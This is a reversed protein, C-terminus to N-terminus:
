LLAEKWVLFRGHRIATGSQEGQRALGPGIGQGSRPCGSRELGPDFVGAYWDRLAPKRQIIRRIEDERAPDQLGASSV